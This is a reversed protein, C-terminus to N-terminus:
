HGTSPTPAIPGSTTRSPYVESQPIGLTAAFTAWFQDQGVARRIDGHPLPVAECGDPRVTVTAVVTQGRSFTLQYALGIDIPCYYRGKPFPQLAYLATYLAQAKTPDTITRELPPLHNDPFVSTRLAHVSLGSSTPAQASRGSLGCATMALALVALLMTAVCLRPHRTRWRASLRLLLLRRANGSHPTMVSCSWCLPGRRIGM